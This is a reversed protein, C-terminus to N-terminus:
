YDKKIILVGQSVNWNLNYCIIDIMEKYTHVISKKSILEDDEDEIFVAFSSLKILQNLFKIVSNETLQHSYMNIQMGLNLMHNGLLRLSLYNDINFDNDILKEYHKKYYGIDINREFTLDSKFKYEQPTKSFLEDGWEALVETIDVAELDAEKIFIDLTFNMEVETLFNQRREADGIIIILIM